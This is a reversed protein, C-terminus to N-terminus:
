EEAILFLEDAIVSSPTEKIRPQESVRSSLNKKCFDELKKEDRVANYLEKLELCKKYKELLTLPGKCEEALRNFHKKVEADISAQNNGTNQEVAALAGPYRGDTNTCENTVYEDVLDDITSLLDCFLSQRGEKTLILNDNECSSFNCVFLGSRRAHLISEHPFCRSFARQFISNGFDIFLCLERSTGSSFESNFAEQNNIMGWTSAIGSFRKTLDDCIEKYKPYTFIM